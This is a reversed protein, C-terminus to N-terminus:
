KGNQTFLGYIGQKAEVSIPVGNVKLNNIENLVVFREYLLSQMPLVPQDPLYTCMNTMKRVFAAESADLDVM